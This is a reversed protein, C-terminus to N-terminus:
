SPVGPIAGRGAPKMRTSRAPCLGASPHAPGRSMRRSAICRRRDHRGRGPWPGALRLHSAGRQRLRLSRQPRLSQPRQRSNATAVAQARRGRMRPPDLCHAGGRMASRGASRNQAAPRPSNARAPGVRRRRAVPCEAARPSPVGRCRLRDRGAAYRRVPGRVGAGWGTSGGGGRRRLTAGAAVSPPDWPPSGGDGDEADEAQRPRGGVRAGPPRAPDPGAAWYAGFRGASPARRNVSIKNM